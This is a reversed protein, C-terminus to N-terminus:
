QEPLEEESLLPDTDPAPLVEHPQHPESGWRYFYYCRDQALERVRPEAPMNGAFRTVWANRRVTGERRDSDSKGYVIDPNITIHMNDCYTKLDRKFELMVGAIAERSVMVGKFDLYSIVMERVSVPRLFHYTNTFFGNAWEIMMQDKVNLYLQRMIGLKELPPRIVTQEKLYFQLFRALMNFLFQLEEESSEKVLEYGFKDEPSYKGTSGTYNGEHFYDSVLMPYIRGYTSPASMDFPKNTTILIKPSDEEDVLVENNYLTKVPMAMVANYFVDSKVDICLDDIRVFNDVSLRFSSFNKGFNEASTKFSTGNVRIGRRVSFLLESITSKGNRGSRKGEDLVSYDTITAMLQKTRTRYRSLMYGLACAKNIFHMDQFQQEEANLAYGDAEKRWFIRGTDYIFRFFDPMEDMPRTPVLRYAWLREYNLFNALETKQQEASMGEVEQKFRERAKEMEPNRVISFKVDPMLRFEGPMITDRNVHFKLDKYAETTIEDASIRVACNEFFFYDFGKGWSRFNLEVEEVEGLTEKSLRLSNSIANMLDEDFYYPHLRLYDKMLAKAKNLVEGKEVIEVINNDVHVFNWAGCSDKYRYFGQASLFQAMNGVNMTYKYTIYRDGYEDKHGMAKRTWFMMSQASSLLTEFHDNISRGHFNRLEKLKAPYYNFYEEADKCPKGTRSSRLTALDKPLYIVKLELFRLALRNACRKGTEDADYLIYVERAIERLRAITKGSIEVSESHAYCVHADSHFYVNIADRPGSCIVLRKFKKLYKPRGGEGREEVEVLPHAEDSTKVEGGRLCNMVDVDGYLMNRMDVRPSGGQFWWTFKYNASERGDPLRVTKFSPEYKRAWWGKEDEYRFAFIPYTDTANVEYSAVEGTKENVRKESVYSSVPYLNFRETLLRSDFNSETMPSSSYYGRGFSYKLIPKGDQGTLSEQMQEGDAANKGTPKYACDVRCGLAKLENDTFGGERINLLIEDRPPVQKSRHFFGNKFDGGITLNFDKALRMAVDWYKEQLSVGMLKAQLMMAGYGKTGNQEGCAYCYFGAYRNGVGARGKAAQPFRDVQFSPNTDAHFPCIYYLHRQTKVRPTYGNHLMVDELPLANLMNM